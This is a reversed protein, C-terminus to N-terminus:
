RFNPMGGACEETAFDLAIGSSEEGGDKRVVVDHVTYGSLLKRESKQVRLTVSFSTCSQTTM